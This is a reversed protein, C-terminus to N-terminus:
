SVKVEEKNRGTGSINGLRSASSVKVFDDNELVEQRMLFSCIRRRTLYDPLGM